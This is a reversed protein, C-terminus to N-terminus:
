TGTSVISVSRAAAAARVAVILLKSLLIRSLSVAINLFYTTKDNVKQNAIRKLYLSLDRPNPLASGASSCRPAGSRGCYEAPLIRGYHNMPQGANSEHNCRGDFDPYESACVARENGTSHPDTMNRAIAAIDAADLAGREADLARLTDLSFSGVSRLSKSYSETLPASRIMSHAYLITALDEESRSRNGM